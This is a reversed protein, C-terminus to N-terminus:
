KYCLHKIDNGKIYEIINKEILKEMYEVNYNFTNKYELTVYFKLELPKVIIEYNLFDKYKVEIIVRMFRENLKEEFEEEM